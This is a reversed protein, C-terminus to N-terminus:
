GTLGDLRAFFEEVLEPLSAPDDATQMATYLCALSVQTALTAAMPTAGHETLADVILTAEQQQKLLLRAMLEPHRRLLRAHVASREPTATWGTLGERTAARIAGLADALSDGIPARREAERRLTGILAAITREDDAFVVEQKDGFYRFFTTRGVEAREAIQTVTVDDFGREGFLEYAATVIANRVKQRKREQLSEASM